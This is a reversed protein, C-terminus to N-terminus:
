SNNVNARPAEISITSIPITTSLSHYQFLMRNGTSNSESIDRVEPERVASYSQGNAYLAESQHSNLLEYAPLIANHHSGRPMELQQVDSQNTLDLVANESHRSELTFVKNKFILRKLLIPISVGVGISSAINLGAVDLEFTFALLYSLPLVIALSSLIQVITPFFTEDLSSLNDSIGLKIVDFINAIAKTIFITRILSDMEQAAEESAILDVLPYPISSFIIFPLINIGTLLLIGTYGYRQMEHYKKKGRLKSVCIPNAQRIGDIPTNFIRLYLSSIQNISIQNKGLLGVMMGIAFSGGSDVLSLTWLPWGLKLMEKFYEFGRRSFNFLEFSKFDKNFYFYGKTVLWTVWSQLILAYGIGVAGQASFGLKGLVFVYSAGIGIGVSLMQFPILQYEKSVSKLFNTDVMNGLFAPIAFSIVRAYTGVPKTLESPQGFANLVPEAVSLVAIVPISLAGALIWGQMVIRGVKLDQGASYSKSLMNTPMTNVLASNPLMLFNSYLTLLADTALENEGAEKLFRAILFSEGVRLGNVVGLPFGVKFINKVVALTSIQTESTAKNDSLTQTESTTKNDSLTQTEDIDKADTPLESGSEVVDTADNNLVGELSTEVQTKKESVGDLTKM